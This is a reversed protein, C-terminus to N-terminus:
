GNLPSAQFLEVRERVSAPIMVSLSESFQLSTVGWACLVLLVGACAALVARRNHWFSYWANM